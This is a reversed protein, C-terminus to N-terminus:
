LPAGAPWLAQVIEDERRSLRATIDEERARDDGEANEARTRHVRLEDRVHSLEALLAGRNLVKCRIGAETLLSELTDLNVVLEDGEGECAANVALLVADLKEAADM